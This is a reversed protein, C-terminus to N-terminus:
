PRARKTLEALVDISPDINAAARNVAELDAAIEARGVECGMTHMPTDVMNGCAECRFDSQAPSQDAM